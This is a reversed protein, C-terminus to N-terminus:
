GVQFGFLSAPVSKSRIKRQVLPRIREDSEHAPQDFLFPDLKQKLDPPRGSRQGSLPYKQPGPVRFQFVSQSCQLFRVRIPDPSFNFEVLLPSVPDLRSRIQEHHGAPELGASEILQVAHLVSGERYNGVRPPEAIGDPVGPEVSRVPGGPEPKVTKPLLGEQVRQLM